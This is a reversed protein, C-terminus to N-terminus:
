KFRIYKDWCDYNDDYMSYYLNKIDKTIKTINATRTKSIERVIMYLEKKNYSGISRCDRFIIFIAEAVKKETKTKFLGNINNICWNSWISVFEELSSDDDFNFSNNIIDFHPEGDDSSSSNLKIVNHNFEYYGNKFNIDKSNSKVKEILFNKAVVTFYSFAKGKSKTFNQLREYLYTVVDHKLDLYSPDLNYFKFSHIVNEALKDFVPYIKTSFIYDKKYKSDSQQFEFIFDEVDQSFYIKNHKKTKKM